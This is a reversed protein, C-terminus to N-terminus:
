NANVKVVYLCELKISRERTDKMYLVVDKGEEAAM